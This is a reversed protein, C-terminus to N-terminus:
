YGAKIFDINPFPSRESSLYVVGINLAPFSSSFNVAVNDGKELDADKLLEVMVAAFNPNASTRKAELAGSTTTIGNFEVGIIGTNNIDYIPNIEINRRIKEQKIEEICSKMILAAEYKEQYWRDKVLRKGGEVFVVSSLLFISLFVIIIDEKRFQKKM